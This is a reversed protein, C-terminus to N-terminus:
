KKSEHEKLLRYRTFNGRELTRKRHCNACVVDCKNIEPLIDKWAKSRILACISYKKDKLHDFELVMRDSIGCDKCSKDKLYQLLDSMVRTVRRKTEDKVQKSIKDKNIQYYKPYHTKRYEKYCAKCFYQRINKLRNKFYFLNIDKNQNCIKCIKYEM